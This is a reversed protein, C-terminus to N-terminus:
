DFNIWQSGTILRNLIKLRKVATNKKVNTEKQRQRQLTADIHQGQQVLICCPRRYQKGYQDLGNSHRPKVTLLKKCIM